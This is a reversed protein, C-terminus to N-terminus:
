FTLLKARSYPLLCLVYLMGMTHGVPYGFYYLLMYRPVNDSVMMWTQWNGWLDGEPSPLSSAYYFFQLDDPLMRALKFFKTLSPSLLRDGASAADGYHEWWTKTKMEEIPQGTAGTWVIEVIRNHLEACLEHDMPTHDKPRFKLNELSYSSSGQDDTFQQMRQQLNSVSRFAYLLYLITLAHSLIVNHLPKKFVKWERARESRKKFRVLCLLAQCLIVLQGHEELLWIWHEYVYRNAALCLAFVDQWAGM